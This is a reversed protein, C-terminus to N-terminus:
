EYNSISRSKKGSISRLFPSFWGIVCLCQNGFILQLSELNEDSWNYGYKKGKNYESLNLYNKAIGIDGKLMKGQLRSSIADNNNNKYM